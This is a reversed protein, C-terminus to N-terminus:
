RKSVCLFIDYPSVNTIKQMLLIKLVKGLVMRTHPVVDTRADDTINWVRVTAM